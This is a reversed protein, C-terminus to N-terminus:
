KNELSTLVSEVHIRLLKLLDIHQQADDMDDVILAYRGEVAFPNLEVFRESYPPLLIGNSNCLDLLRRIDHVKEFHVGASSLLSKMYKEAAQQLHFFIIELDLEEDEITLAYIALKLDANAKRCLLEPMSLLEVPM